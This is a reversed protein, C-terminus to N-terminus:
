KRFIQRYTTPPSREKMQIKGNVFIPDYLKNEQGKKNPTNNNSTMPARPVYPISSQSKQQRWVNQQQEESDASAKAPSPRAKREPTAVPKPSSKVVLRNEEDEEKVDSFSRIGLGLRRAAENSDVADVDITSPVTEDEESTSESHSYVM